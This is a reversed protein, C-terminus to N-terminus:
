VEVNVIKSILLIGILQSFVAMGIIVLGLPHTFLVGIYQPNNAYLYLALCVPMGGIIMGSIKGQATLTKIEGKIRVRERITETINDLISALNGGVQRQIVVATVVLELDESEVRKTIQLLADEIPVGLNAERLARAFEESIPSPMERSVVDMAQLFSYGAKLSNSALTLADPLQINFLKAKKAKQQRELLTPIYTSIVGFILALVLSRTLLLFLLFGLIGSAATAILLDTKKKNKSKKKEQAKKDEKSQLPAPIEDKQAFYKDLRKVASEGKGGLLYQFCLVLGIVLVFSAGALFLAM